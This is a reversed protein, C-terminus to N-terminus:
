ELKKEEMKKAKEAAEPDSIITGGRVTGGLVIAASVILINKIIYQGTINPAIPVINFVEEPFIFLPSLIGILQIFLLILTTKLFSGILLGIGILCELTALGIYTTDQPFLHFTLVSTTRMALAEIPSLGPFYKLFGFWLFIIGLSIRLFIIGHSAMWHEIRKEKLSTM